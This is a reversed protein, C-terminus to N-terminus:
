QRRQSRRLNRLVNTAVGLLWPLANDRELEVQTRRRWAELFVIATLEEAQSWDGTAREYWLLQEGALVAYAPWAQEVDRVFVSDADAEARGAGAVSNVAAALRVPVGMFAGVIGGLIAGWGARRSGGYKRAYKGALMFEAVEALVTLGTAGAINWIGITSRCSSASVRSPCSSDPIRYAHATASTM